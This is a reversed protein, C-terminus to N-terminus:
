RARLPASLLAFTSAVPACSYIAARVAAATPRSQTM